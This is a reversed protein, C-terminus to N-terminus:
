QKDRETAALEDDVVDTTEPLDDDVVDISEPLEADFVDIAEAIEAESLDEEHSDLGYNSLDDNYPDELGSAGASEEGSGVSMNMENEVAMDGSEDSGALSLRLGQLCEQARRLLIRIAQTVPIIRECSSVANCLVEYEFFFCRVFTASWQESECDIM